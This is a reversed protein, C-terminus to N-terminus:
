QSIELRESVARFVDATFRTDTVVDWLLGFKEVYFKKEYERVPEPAAELVSIRGTEDKAILLLKM